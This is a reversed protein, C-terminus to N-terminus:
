GKLAKLAKLAAQANNDSPLPDRSGFAADSLADAMRNAGDQINPDNSTEAIHKLGMANELMQADTQERQSM